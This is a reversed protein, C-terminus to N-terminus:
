SKTHVSSAKKVTMLIFLAPKLNAEVAALLYICVYARIVQLRYDDRTM